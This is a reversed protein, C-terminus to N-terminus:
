KVKNKDQKEVEFLCIFLLTTNTNNDVSTTISQLRQAERRAHASQKRSTM